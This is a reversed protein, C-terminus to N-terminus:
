NDNANENHQSNQHQQQFFDSLMQKEWFQTAPKQQVQASQVTQGRSASITETMPKEESPQKETISKERGPGPTGIFQDEMPVALMLHNIGRSKKQADDGQTNSNQSNSNQQSGSSQQQQGNKKGSNQNKNNRQAQQPGSPAAPPQGAQNQQEDQQASNSDTSASKNEDKSNADAQQSEQQPGAQSDSQSGSDTQSNESTLRAMLPPPLKTVIRLESNKQAKEPVAKAAAAGASGTTAGSEAADGSEMSKEAQAPNTADPGHQSQRANHNESTSLRNRGPATSTSSLASQVIEEFETIDAEAPNSFVSPFETRLMATIVVLVSLLLSLGGFVKQRRTLSHPRVPFPVLEHNSAKEVSIRCSALAAQEFDTPAKIQFFEDAMQLDDKFGLQNDYLALSQKRTTKTTLRVLLLNFAYVGAPIVVLSIVLLAIAATVSFGPLLFLLVCLLPSVCLARCAYNMAKHRHCSVAARRFFAAGRQALLNLQLETQSAKTSQM